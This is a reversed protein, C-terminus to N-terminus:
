IRRAKMPFGNEQLVEEVAKTNTDKNTVQDNKKKSDKMFDKNLGKRTQQLEELFRKKLVKDLRECMDEFDFHAGTEPDNFRTKPANPIIAM